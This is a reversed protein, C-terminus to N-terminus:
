ESTSVESDTPSQYEIGSELAVFNPAKGCENLGVLNKEWHMRIPLIWSESLYPQTLLGDADSNKCFFIM